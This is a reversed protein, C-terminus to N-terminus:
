VLFSSGRGAYLLSTSFLPPDLKLYQAFVDEHCLAEELAFEKRTLGQECHSM